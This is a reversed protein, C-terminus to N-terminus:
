AAKRTKRYFKGLGNMARIWDGSTMQSADEQLSVTRLHQDLNTAPQRDVKVLETWLHVCVQFRHDNLVSPRHKDYTFLDPNDTERRMWLKLADIAKGADRGDQLFRHHDLGTQRKLWDIMAQDSKKDVVGLNYAAIWLAQLKKAYKGTARQNQDPVLKKLESIVTLRQDDDMDKSSNKGTHKELFARYTDENFGAKQKLVHIQQIATM